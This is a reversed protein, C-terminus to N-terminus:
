TRGRRASVRLEGSLVTDSPLSEVNFIIFLEVLLVDLM